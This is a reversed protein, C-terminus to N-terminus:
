DNNQLKCRFPKMRPTTFGQKAKKTRGTEYDELTKQEADDMDDYSRKSDDRQKALTAGLRLADRAKQLAERRTQQRQREEEDLSSASLQVDFGEQTQHVVIDNALSVYWQLCEDLGSQLMRMDLVKFAPPDVVSPLGHQWILFAVRKEGLVKRLMHDVFSRQFGSLHTDGKFNNRLRYRRDQEQHPLLDHTILNRGLRQYCSSVDDEDLEVRETANYSATALLEERIRTSRRMFELTANADKPSGDKHLMMIDIVKSLKAVSATHLLGLTAGTPDDACKILAELAAHHIDDMHIQPQFDQSMWLLLAVIKELDTDGLFLKDESATAQLKSTSMPLGTLPGLSVDDTSAASDLQSSSTAYETATSTKSLRTKPKLMGAATLLAKAAAM